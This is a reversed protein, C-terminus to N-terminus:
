KVLIMKKTQCFSGTKLQYFYVGSSLNSANWTKTHNGANLEENILTTVEKGLIDYIKLTVFEAKPLSFNINTAPNFPNPYNQSLIYETPLRVIPEVVVIGNPNYVSVGGGYDEAGFWINGNRDAMIGEIYNYGIGSNGTNFTTWTSGTFKSVGKGYTGIWVSNTSDICMCHSTGPTTWSNWASGNYSVVYWNYYGDISVLFWLKGNKDLSISKIFDGPLGSNQSNRVTWSIGDFKAIGKDTGVWINNQKDVVICNIKNSPLESNQLNYITMTSGERKILGIDTGFWVVGCKDIAVCLINNSPFTGTAHNYTIWNSGNFYSTGGKACPVNWSCGVIWVGGSADFAFGNVMNSPYIGSNQYDFTSWSNGNKEVAGNMFSGMWVQGNNGLGFNYIPSIPLTGSHVDLIKWTTGDSALIQGGGRWALDNQTVLTPTLSFYINGANDACSCGISSYAPISFKTSDFSIWQNGDFKIIQPQAGLPFYKFWLNNYVDATSLELKDLPIGNIIGTYSFWNNGNFMSVGRPTSFWTRGLNDSLIANVTNSVLGSNTSDLSTWSTGNYYKVGPYQAIWIYKSPGLAFPNNYIHQFITQIHGGNYAMLDGSSSIYYVTGDGSVKLTLTSYSINGGEISWNNGNYVGFGPNGWSGIAWVRGDPGVDLCTIDNAVLGDARTFIEKSLTQPDFRVVGGRAGIWLINNYSVISTIMDINTYNIWKPNQAKVNFSFFFLFASAWYALLNLLRIYNKM